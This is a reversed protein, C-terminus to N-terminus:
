EGTFNNKTYVYSKKNQHTILIKQRELYFLELINAFCGKAIFCKNIDKFIDQMISPITEYEGLYEQEGGFYSSKIITKIIKKNNIVEKHKNLKKASLLLMIYTYINPSSELSNLKYFQTLSQEFKKNRYYEEGQKLLKISKADDISLNKYRLLAYTNKDTKLIDFYIDSFNNKIYRNLKQWDDKKISLLLSEGDTFIKIFDNWSYGNNKLITDM